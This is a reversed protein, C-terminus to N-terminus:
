YAAWMSLRYWGEICLIICLLVIVHNNLPMPVHRDPLDLLQRIEVEVICSFVKNAYDQYRAIMALM